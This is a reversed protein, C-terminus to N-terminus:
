EQTGKESKPELVRNLVMSYIIEGANFGLKRKDSCRKFISGLGIREWLKKFIIVPGYEKTWDSRMESCLKIVKLKSSHKSLKEVVDPLVKDADEIRGFNAVTVQRVRGAIRKTAVLFLYHRLSGDKNKYSKTRVFM